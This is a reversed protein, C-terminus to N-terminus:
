YFAFESGWQGLRTSNKSVSKLNWNSVKIGIWRCWYIKPQAKCYGEQIIITTWQIKKELLLLFM